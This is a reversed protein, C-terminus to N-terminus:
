SFDRKELKRVLPLLKTKLFNPLNIYVKRLLKKVQITLYYHRTHTQKFNFQNYNYIEDVSHKRKITRPKKKPYGLVVLAIPDFINPISFINRVTRKSPLNDVWCGGLGLSYIKLQMNQIAASASQIYDNYEINDTLNSYLVLIAIPARKIFYAGGLDSLLSLKKKDDIVIFRWDQKNCASPAHNAAEIIQKVISKPVSKDEFQRVSRRQKIAQDLNM